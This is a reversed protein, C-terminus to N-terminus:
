NQGSVPAAALPGLGPARAFCGDHHWSDSPNLGGLGFGLRLRQRRFKFRRAQTSRSNGPGAPASESEAVTGLESDATMTVAQTLIM